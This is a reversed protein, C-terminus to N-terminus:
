SKRLVLVTTDDTRAAPGRFRDAAEICTRAIQSSTSGRGVGALAEALGRVGLEDGSPNRAENVGDSYLVLADGAALHVSRTPYASSCFMGLPLGAVTLPEVRGGALLLPPGQAAGCLEVRGDAFARGLVLTAYHSELTSECLLRNAREIMEQLSGGLDRLTRILAHLHSAVLSAALGKGSVDGVAFLVGEDPRRPPLVDCYDGGVPGLPEFRFDFEWGDVAIGAKPLLGAQVKSALDLDRELASREQDDLHDLCFRILPDCRLRDAEVPDGCTECLGFTGASWRALAADVQGLLRAIEPPASPTLRAEQLRRRRDLLEDHYLLDPNREM